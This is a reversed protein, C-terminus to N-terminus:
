SGRVRRLCSGVVFDSPIHTKQGFPFRTKLDQKAPHVCVDCATEITQSPRLFSPVDELKSDIWVQQQPPLLRGHISSYIM